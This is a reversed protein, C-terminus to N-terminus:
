KSGQFDTWANLGGLVNFVNNYGQMVLSKSAQQSRVGMMCMFAIPHDKPLSEIERHANGDLVTAFPLVADAGVGIQYVKANPNTQLWDELDSVAIDQFKPENPNDILVGGQDGDKFDLSIGNARKASGRSFYFPIGEVLCEIQGNSKPGVFLDYQYNKSVELHIGGEHQALSEAFLAKIGPSLHITPPSVEELSVGLMQPLEGNQMMETVLDCGGVFEQKIYLQPFTPWQSFDKMGSRIDPDSFVNYTQYDVELEELVGVVRASFGCQPQNRDGKMFLVIDHSDVMGQLKNKLEETM